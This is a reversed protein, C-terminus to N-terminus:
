IRGQCLCCRFIGVDVVEFLVYMTANLLQLPSVFLKAMSVNTSLILGIFFGSILSLVVCSGLVNIAVVCAFTCHWVCLQM